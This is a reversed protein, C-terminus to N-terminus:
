KKWEWTNMNFKKLIRKLKVVDGRNKAERISRCLLRVSSEVTLKELCNEIRCPVVYELIMSSPVVAIFRKDSDELVYGRDSSPYHFSMADNYTISIGSVPDRVTIAM